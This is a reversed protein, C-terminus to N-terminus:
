EKLDKIKEITCAKKIKLLDKEPFASFNKDGKVM